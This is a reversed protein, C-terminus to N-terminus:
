VIQGSVVATPMDPLPFMQAGALYLRKIPTIFGPKLSMYERTVATFPHRILKRWNVKEEFKPFLENVDETITDLVEEEDTRGKITYPTSMVCFLSKGEPAVERSINSVEVFSNFCLGETRPVMVEMDYKSLKDDLGFYAIIFETYKIGKLRNEYERPLDVIKPLDNFPITSIVNSADIEKEKGEEVYLVRTVQGEDTSIQKVESSTKVSGGVIQSLLGDRSGTGM